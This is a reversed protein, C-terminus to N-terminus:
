RDGWPSLMCVVSEVQKVSVVLVTIDNYRMDTFQITRVHCEVVIDPM